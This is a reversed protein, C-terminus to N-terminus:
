GARARPEIPRHAPTLQGPQGLSMDHRHSLADCEDDRASLPRRRFTLAVALWLVGVNAPIGAVLTVWDAEGKAIGPLFLLVLFVAHPNTRIDAADLLRVACGLLFMGVLVPVWGGHRYLDGAPTIADTSYISPSAGFYEQGFQYGATLLPKGPWLARPVLNAVPIEALQDASIFPVQGPTRQLIVAPTDIASLRVLLYSLSAPVAALAGSDAAERLLGPAEDAAQSATLTVPGGRATDRYAQNFPVIVVLFVAGAVILATRPLRFRAASLPVAVALVTIIFNQKGGAATGAALEALFLVALTVRAGRRRERFVQLAAAAVALPALLALDGFVQGYGNASTFAPAANGVYGFRGTTALTALRAATAIGYLLWPTAPSRVEEGFRRSVAAVGRAALRRGPRGPGAAYGAAWATMAVAVLWLARSVSTVAIQASTGSQPQSWTLTAIGSTLACWALMWPGIKWRALGLDGYLPGSTVCILGALWAALTIGGWAAAVAPRDADYLTVAMLVVAAAMFVLGPVVLASLPCPRALTRIASSSM